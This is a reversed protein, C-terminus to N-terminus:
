RAPSPRGSKWVGRVIGEKDILIFAQRAYLAKAEGVLQGVDYDLTTRGHPFDALLPFPLDLYPAFAKQGALGAIAIGLVKIGLEQFKKHDDRRASLNAITAPTWDANYFEILVMHKGRFQSLSIHKGAFVDLLKFGPAEEGEKVAHALGPALLLLCAVLMAAMPNNVKKAIM